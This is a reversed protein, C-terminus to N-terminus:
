QLIAPQEGPALKRQLRGIYGAADRHHNLFGFLLATIFHSYRDLLSAARRFAAESIGEGSVSAAGAVNLFNRSFREGLACMSVNRNRLCNRNSINKNRAAQPWGFTSRPRTARM